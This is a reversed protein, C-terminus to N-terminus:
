GFINSIKFGGTTQGIIKNGLCSCPLSSRTESWQLIQRCSSTALGPRHSKPAESSSRPHVWGSVRQFPLPDAPVQRRWDRIRPPWRRCGCRVACLAIMLLEHFDHVTAPGSRPDALGEWCAGFRELTEERSM